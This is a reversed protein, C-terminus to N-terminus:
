KNLEEKVAEWLDDCIDNKGNDPLTVRGFDDSGLGGSDRLFEIMQGITLLVTGCEYIFGSLKLSQERTLEGLQEETIHQKM